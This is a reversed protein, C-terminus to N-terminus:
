TRGKQGSHLADSLRRAADEIAIEEPMLARFRHHWQMTWLTWAVMKQFLEIPPFERCQAAALIAEVSRGRPYAHTDALVHALVTCYDDVVGTIAAERHAPELDYFTM